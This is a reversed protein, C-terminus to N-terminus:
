TSGTKSALRSSRRGTATTTPAVATAKRTPVRRKTPPPSGSSSSSSSPSKRRRATTRRRPLAESSATPSESSSAPSESPSSVYLSGRPSSVRWGSSLRTPLYAATIRNRQTSVNYPFATPLRTADHVPIIERFQIKGAYQTQLRAFATAMDTVAKPIIGTPVYRYFPHEDAPMSYEQRAKVRQRIQDPDGTIHWLHIHGKYPSGAADLREMLADIKAVRGRANVSITTEYVIPLGANIARDLAAESQETITHTATADALPQYVERVANLAALTAPDAVPTLAARATNYWKFLGLNEKRSGYASISAFRAQEATAPTQKLLHAAASAARFPTIAELLLDLNVTVYARNEPLLGADIAAAHGSSKGAGPVGVLFLFTPHAAPAARDIGYLRDVATDTLASLRPVEM